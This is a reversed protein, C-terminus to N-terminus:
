TGSGVHCCLIGVAVGTITCDSVCGLNYRSCNGGFMGGVGVGVGVGSGVATGLGTCTNAGGGGAGWDPAATAAAAAGAGSVLLTKAIM